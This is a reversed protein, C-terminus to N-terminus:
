LALGPEIPLDSDHLLKAVQATWEGMSYALKVEQENLSPAVNASEKGAMVVGFPTAMLADEMIPTPPNGVVIQLIPLM